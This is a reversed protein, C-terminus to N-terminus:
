VKNIQYEGVSIVDQYVKDYFEKDINNLSELKDLIGETYVDERILEIVKDMEGYVKKLEDHKIGIVNERRLLLGLSKIPYNLVVENIKEEIEMCLKNLCYDRIIKNKGFHEDYWIVSYGLYLNSLIDAM